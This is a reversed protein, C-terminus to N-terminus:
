HVMGHSNFRIKPQPFGKASVAVFLLIQMHQVSAQPKALVCIIKFEMLNSQSLGSHVLYFQNIQAELCKSLIYKFQLTM